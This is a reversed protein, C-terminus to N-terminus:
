NISLLRWFYFGKVSTVSGLENCFAWDVVIEYM